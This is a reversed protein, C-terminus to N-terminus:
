KRYTRRKKNRRMKRSRKGGTTAGFVKGVSNFVNGLIGSNNQDQKEQPTEEKEKEVIRHMSQNNFLKDLDSKLIKFGYPFGLTFDEIRGGEWIYKNNENSVLEDFEKFGYVNTKNIFNRTANLLNDSYNPVESEIFKTSKDTVFFVGKFKEFLNISRGDQRVGKDGNVFSASDQYEIVRKTNIANTTFNYEYGKLTDGLKELFNYGQSITWARQNKSAASFDTGNGLSVANSVVAATDQLASTVVKRSLTGITKGVRAANKIGLINSGKVDYFAFITIGTDRIGNDHIIKIGKCLYSGQFKIEMEDSIFFEDNRNSLTIDKDNKKIIMYNKSKNNSYGATDNHNKWTQLSEVLNNASKNSNPGLYPPPQPSGGNIKRIKKRTKVM